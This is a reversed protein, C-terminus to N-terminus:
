NLTEASNVVVQVGLSWTLHFKLSLLYKKIRFLIIHNNKLILVWRHHYYLNRMLIAEIICKIQDLKPLNSEKPPDIEKIELTKHEISFHTQMQSHTNLKEKLSLILNLCLAIIVKLGHHMSNFNMKHLHLHMSSINLWRNVLLEKNVVVM